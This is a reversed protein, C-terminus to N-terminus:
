AAPKANEQEQKVALAKQLAAIQVAMKGIMEFIENETM